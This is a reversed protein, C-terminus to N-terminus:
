RCAAIYLASSAKHVTHEYGFANGVAVVTEGPM